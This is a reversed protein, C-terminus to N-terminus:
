LGGLLFIKKEVPKSKSNEQSAFSFFSSSFVKNIVTSLSIFTEVTGFIDSLKWITKILRNINWYILTIIIKTSLKNPVLVGQIEFKKSIKTSM